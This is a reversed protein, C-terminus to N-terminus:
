LDQPEGVTFELGLAHELAVGGLYVVVTTVMANIAPIGLDKVFWGVLAGALISLVPVWKFAVIGASYSRRRTFYDVILVTGVPPLTANLINLWGVFNDYLWLAALTGLIGAVLVLPKKPIKTINAYGLGTTYLANNNTTWINAGLVVIAPIALGQAIMVYFIDDKGTFAGGVAGFSFMLTNGLFFAVVTTIVASSTSKAFRTFNPTASGGSVFSGVVLGVASVVGMGTSKAFIASLGGGDATASVMSYTGLIAILPVSIFSVIEIAKIGYYASATMLGGAIIVIVWVNVHLLEATPKAFMAVGVGFWGMQTLSILASPLFSGKTGFTRQSMLDFSLGTKAGTYVALIAGGILVALIYGNLNLGQGLKAGVSMSASFFTFGLMVFGVAWFSRRSQTPVAEFSYDEDIASSHQSILADLDQASNAADAAAPAPAGSGASADSSPVDPSSAGSGSAGPSSSAAAPNHGSHSSSM